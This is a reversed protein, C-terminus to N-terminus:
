ACKLDSWPIGCIKSYACRIDNNNSNKPDEKEFRTLLKPYVTDCLLPSIYNTGTADNGPNYYINNKTISTPRYKSINYLQFRINNFNNDILIGEDKDLTNATSVDSTKTSDKYWKYLITESVINNSDSIGTRFTINSWNKNINPTFKIRNINENSTLELIGVCVNSTSTTPATIKICKVNTEKPKKKLIDYLYDYNYDGWDIINIGNSNAGNGLSNPTIINAINTSNWLTFNPEPNFINSNYLIDTANGNTDITYNNELLAIKHLNSMINKYRPEDNYIGLNSSLYKDDMNPTNLDVYLKYINNNNDYDTNFNKDDKDYKGNTKLNSQTNYINNTLRYINNTKYLEKKDFIDENMTCKYNFDRTYNPDFNKGIYKDDIITAKWYDPCSIEDVNNENNIKVPKFTFIYYLMICVILITGIIYVVTFALFKNFLFDRVSDSLYSLIVLLLGFLAYIICIVITGKFMNEQKIVNMTIDHESLKNEIEDEKAKKSVLDLINNKGM